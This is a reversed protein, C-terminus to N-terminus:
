IFGDKGQKIILVADEEKPGVQFSRKEGDNLNAKTKFIEVEEPVESDVPKKLSPLKKSFGFGFRKQLEYAIFLGGLALSSGFFISSTKCWRPRPVPRSATSSFRFRSAFKGLSSM